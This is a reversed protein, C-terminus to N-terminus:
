IKLLKIYTKVWNFKNLIDNLRCKIETFKTKYNSM